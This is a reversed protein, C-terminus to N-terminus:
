LRAEPGRPEGALGAGGRVEEPHGELQAMGRGVQLLLQSYELVEGM